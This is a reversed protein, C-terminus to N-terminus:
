PSWPSMLRYASRLFLWAIWCAETPWVQGRSTGGCPSLTEKRNQTCNRIRRMCLSSLQGPGAAPIWAGYTWRARERQLYPLELCSPLFKRSHQDQCVGTVRREQRILAEAHSPNQSDRRLSGPLPIHPFQRRQPTQSSNSGLWPLRELPRGGRGTWARGGLLWPYPMSNVWWGTGSALCGLSPAPGARNRTHRHRSHPGRDGYGKDTPQLFVSWPTRQLAQTWRVCVTKPSASIFSGMMFLFVRREVCVQLSGSAVTVSAPHVSTSSLIATPFDAPNRGVSAWHAPWGWGPLHM